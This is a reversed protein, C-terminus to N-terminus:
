FQTGIGIRATFMERDIFSITPNVYNNIYLQYDLQAQLFMTQTSFYRIGVSNKMTKATLRDIDLNFSQTNAQADNITKIQMKDLTFEGFSIAVFPKIGHIEPLVYRLGVTWSTIKEKFYSTRKVTPNYYHNGTHYDVVYLGTFTYNVERDYDHSLTGFLEIPGHKYGAELDYVFDQKTIPSKSIRGIYDSMNSGIKVNFMGQSHAEVFGMFLSAIILINKM